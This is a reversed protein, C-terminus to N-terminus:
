NSMSIIIFAVSKNIIVIFVVLRIFHIFVIDIIQRASKNWILPHAQSSLMPNGIIVLRTRPGVRAAIADLDYAHQVLPVRIIEGGVREMRLTPQDRWKDRNLLM